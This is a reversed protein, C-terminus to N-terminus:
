RRGAPDIEGETSFSRPLHKGRRQPRPVRTGAREARRGTASRPPISDHLGGVGGQGAESGRDELHHGTQRFLVPGDVEALAEGVLAEGEVHQLAGGALGHVAPVLVGRHHSDGLQALGDGGVAAAEVAEVDVPRPLRHHGGAGGLGEGGRQEAEDLRAVLHDHELREVVAVQGHDAPTPANGAEDVQVWGRPAEVGVLQAGGERSAGLQHQDVVGLVRRGLHPRPLLQLDHGLQRGAVVGVQDAVLDVLVDDEVAPAWTGSM